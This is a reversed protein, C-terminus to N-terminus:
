VPISESLVWLFNPDMQPWIPIVMTMKLKDMKAADQSKHLNKCMPKRSLYMTWWIEFKSGYLVLIPSTKSFKMERCLISYIWGMVAGSIMHFLIKRMIKSNLWHKIHFCSSPACTPVKVWHWSFTSFYGYGAGLNLTAM